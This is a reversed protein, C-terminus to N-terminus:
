PSPPLVITLCSGTSRSDLVLTGGLAAIRERLSRPGQRAAALEEGSFRGQFPFGNGDDAVIIGLRSGEERALTVRVRDAEAHRAANVLGERVLHYVERGLRGDVAAIEPALELEVQLGWESEIRDALGELRRGLDDGPAKGPGQPYLEQIFFRLDRQELALLSLLEDLAREAGRSDEPLRGRIAALRLGMGTMSQLVGDHLDRAMRVREEDAATERVREGLYFRDLAATVTRRVIAGLVLDDGTMGRKDLFLLRGDVRQGALRSSLVSRPALVRRADETLVPGRWRRGPDGGEGLVVPLPAALDPCLFDEDRLAEVELAGAELEPVRGCALGGDPERHGEYVRFPRGEVRWALVARPAALVGQAYGFLEEVLREESEFSGGSFAALATIERRTRAEHAGLYGLLAGIVSLYVGRIIFTHLEYDPDRLVSASYWGFVFLAALAIGATWLTGRWQWRSSACVLSFVFFAFFPTSPGGTFYVFLTFFALDFAHSGLRWARSGVGRGLAVAWVALSYALYAALLGYAIHAHKIPELPDLWLALLSGAALITRGVAILRETRARPSYLSRIETM